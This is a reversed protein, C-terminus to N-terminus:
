KKLILKHKILKSEKKETIFYIGDAFSEINIINIVDSSVKITKINQGLQNTINLDGDYDSQVNVIGRSPNPHMIFKSKNEFDPYALSSVLVCSSIASCSGITVVVAYSGTTRPTFSQSNEGM